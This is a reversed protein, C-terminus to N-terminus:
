DIEGTYRADYRDGPELDMIAIVEICLPEDYSVYYARCYSRCSALKYNLPYSKPLGHVSQRVDLYVMPRLPKTEKM